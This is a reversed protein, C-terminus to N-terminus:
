DLWPSSSGRRKMRGVRVRTRSRLAALWWLASRRAVAARGGDRLERMVQMRYDFPRGALHVIRPRLSPDDPVSNWRKALEAVPWGREELVATIAPQEWEPHGVFETREWAEVLVGAQARPIVMVGTNAIVRGNTRHIALRFMGDDGAIDLRPDVVLADADVWVVLEHQDLADLLFPIKQWPPPRDSLPETGIMLEYSHIRAYREFTPM